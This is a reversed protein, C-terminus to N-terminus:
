IRFLNYVLVGVIGIVMMFIYFGVNGNQLLRLGKSGEISGKGLGNVLGDIGLLDVVKYFFVSLADLPKRIVTDYLEDIYFKHYSLSTLAPREENDAVPINKNDGYKVAAYVAAVIAGLVSICMLTIETSRSLHNVTAEQLATSREFVPALFHQLWHHGGMVEPVGIFGGLLSLIALVILPFTMSVPAEHIHHEQEHTGRFKGYFTLYIMRFMYFSTCMATLVGVIWLTQNHAFTEALIEDKSFFGAFPPIGSIALTGILMTAFTIPLKKRLGGMKRMDQEGSVAHIVSGACLFLLAKFFAHTLVHFFAGTYAGVGLGLFMYGLQSVTSYALVKKIDTQTIAILAAFVATTLGIIAIIHMTVPALTFLINSRAIMYIGATVMTAAHILASVPTPGAMADPLWTFLPIQASKGTAGIFLLITILVLTADGSHMLAAKDWIENFSVSGFTHFIVFVGLLFGLDGIRNMVFAKKAADAYAPNTFWFGILLYSCLGVGEWGIFMIVYNSGLVLLLMFFIFLNLYSFFKGFGADDHMYGVSYVHILFGVGTIVLLMIASLQDILFSFPINLSGVKIWDFLDVNVAVGTANIQLFTAVSLAFSLLVVTSGIFGIVGKSLTNRGLGNIIFGILPLIPILWIYNNM